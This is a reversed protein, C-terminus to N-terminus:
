HFQKTASELRAALNVGDGLVTFEKRLEPHGIEGVIVEGHNVGIGTALAIREDNGAWEENLKVLVARMRLAARVARTTDTKVGLSHTDGWAAMIADGIFKQLTGGERVIADVMPVFYENLQGVLREPSCTESMTTFGRIDSFLITVAKKQGRLSQEFADSQEVVVNAVNKSVYKDLVSRIRAREMQEIFFLLIVGTFGTAALAFVPPVMPMVLRGHEFLMQSGFMLAAGAGALVTVQALANRILLVAAAAVAVCALALWRNTATSTERLASGSLEAAAIQAHIEVGPMVGFPTNHEDHFTEAIPGIFVLKDKFGEGGRYRPDNQFISEIFVEEAPLIPFKPSRGQFNIIEEDGDPMAGGTFKQVALGAFSVLDRAGDPDLGNADYASSLDVLVPGDGVSVLAM